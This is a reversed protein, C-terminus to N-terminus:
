LIIGDVRYLSDIYLKSGIKNLSDPNLFLGPRIVIDQGTSAAKQVSDVLLGADICFCIANLPHFGVDIYNRRNFSQLTKTTEQLTTLEGSEEHLLRTTLNIVIGRGKTLGSMHKKLERVTRVTIINSAYGLGKLVKKYHKALKVSYNAGDDLITVHNVYLEDELRNFMIGLLHKPEILISTKVPRDPQSFGIYLIDTNDEPVMDLADEGFVIINGVLYQALKLGIRNKATETDDRKFSRLYFANIPNHGKANNEVALEEVLETGKLETFMNSQIVTQGCLLFSLSAVLIQKM